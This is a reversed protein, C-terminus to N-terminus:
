PISKQEERGEALEFQICQSFAQAAAAYTYGRMELRDKLVTLPARYFVFPFKDSPLDPDTSKTEEYMERLIPPLADLDVTVVKDTERFHEMIYPDVDGKSTGLLFKGLYCNAYSGM